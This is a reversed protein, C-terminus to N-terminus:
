AEKRLAAIRPARSRPSDLSFSRADGLDERIYEETRAVAENLGKNNLGFSMWVISQSEVDYEWLGILRGRDVIANSPLDSLFSLDKHDKSGLVRRELDEAGVLSSVNRRLQALSDMCSVLVYQPSKQTKYANLLERDKSFMLRESGDKLPVLKLADVAAKGARVGLGSFWQFEAITAPGTWKFYRRALEVWVEERSLNFGDLPNPQWCAYRYRQQDLRGNTPIRRIEGASQLFGLAVSLTNTLGRKKGEEGLSRAKDGLAAKLEDPELAGKALAKVVAACLKEIEADTVGLKRATKMEAEDSFGQGAKLALPYDAAPVVYTCGRASPLECIQLGAVADDAAARRIGGRAFLTLYPGSGGVSRAWGAQQLIEAPTKGRLSGDLGQRQFWWARLKGEDM